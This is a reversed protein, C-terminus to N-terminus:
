CPNKRQEWVLYWKEDALLYVASLKVLRAIYPWMEPDIDPVERSM